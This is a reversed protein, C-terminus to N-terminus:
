SAKSEDTVVDFRHTQGNRDTFAKEKKETFPWFASDFYYHAMRRGGSSTKKEIIARSFQRRRVKALLYKETIKLREALDKIPIPAEEVPLAM